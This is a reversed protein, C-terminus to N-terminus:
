IQLYNNFYQFSFFQMFLKFLFLNSYNYNRNSSVKIFMLQIHRKYEIEIEIEILDFLFKIKGVDKLNIPSLSRKMKSEDKTQKM